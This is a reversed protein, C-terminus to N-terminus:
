FDHIDTCTFFAIYEMSPAYRKNKVLLLYQTVDDDEVIMGVEAAVVAETVAEAGIMEDAETTGAEDIMATAVEITEDVIVAVIMETATTM